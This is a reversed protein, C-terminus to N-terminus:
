GSSLRLMDFGSCLARDPIVQYLKQKQVAPDRENQNGPRPDRPRVRMVAGMNCLFSHTLTWDKAGEVETQSKM